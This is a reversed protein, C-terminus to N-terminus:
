AGGWGITVRGRDVVLPVRREGGSLELFRAMAAPDRKVDFYTVPVGRAAYEERAARTYGCGEKGYIEVADAM